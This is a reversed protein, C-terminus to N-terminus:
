HLQLSAVLDVKQHDTNWAKPSDLSAYVRAEKCLARGLDKGKNETIQNLIVLEVNLVHKAQVKKKQSEEHNTIKQLVLTAKHKIDDKKTMLGKYQSTLQKREMEKAKLYNDLKEIKGPHDGVVCEHQEYNRKSVLEQYLDLNIDYLSVHGSVIL